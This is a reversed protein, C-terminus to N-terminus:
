LLRKKWVVPLMTQSHYSFNVGLVRLKWQKAVQAPGRLWNQPGVQLFAPQFHHTGSLLPSAGVKWSECSLKRLRSVILGNSQLLLLLWESVM